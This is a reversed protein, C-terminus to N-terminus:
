QKDFVLTTDLDGMQTSAHGLITMTKGDASLSYVDKNTLEFQGRINADTVVVLTAGDWSATVDEITLMGITAQPSDPPVTVKTGDPTLVAMYSTDGTQGTSTVKDTLKSGDQAIVDTRSTPGFNGPDSKPVNLKWTGTFNPHDAALSVSACAVVVFLLATIKQFM